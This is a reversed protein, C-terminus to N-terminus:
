PLGRHCGPPLTTVPPQHERSSTPLWCNSGQRRHLPGHKDYPHKPTNRGPHPSPYRQRRRRHNDRYGDNVTELLTGRRQWRIRRQGRRDLARPAGGGQDRRGPSRSRRGGPSARVACVAGEWLPEQDRAEAAQWAHSACRYGCASGAV